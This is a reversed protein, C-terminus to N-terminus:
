RDAAPAADMLRAILHRCETPTHVWDETVRAGVAEQLSRFQERDLAQLTETLATELDDGLCLGIRRAALWHGIATRELAIPVTGVWGSEYLRNPLLWESNQGEEFFDIVWAFDVEGYIRPLEEPNRYPGEFRMYPEAAIMADFDPFERHAPRGRLVVELAGDLRRSVASLIRFSKLCRIAGFWGIRWPAGDGRNTRAAPPPLAQEIFVKNEVLEVPLGVQSHPEFYNEVFAPSSTILAASRRALAGELWRLGRGAPGQSLMLRHIDLCEYIVPIRTRGGRVAQAVALMELNRAVILDAGEVGGAWRSGNLAAWATAAVRKLFRGDATRGLDHAPVGEISTVPLGRRFGALYIEAGGAKFMRIRRRVAPDNLDHVFYAIRVSEPRSM